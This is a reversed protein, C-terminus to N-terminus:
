KFFISVDILKGGKKPKYDQDKDRLKKTAVEMEELKASLAKLDSRWLDKITKSKLEELERKKEDREKLLKDKREATLMWMTMGVLYDYKKADQEEVDEEEAVEDEEDVQSARLNKEKWVMVPDADYKKAILQAIMDKKKMNEVKVEGSCKELIFRAQNSLRLAEAELMGVYYDKRKQYYRLRLAFFEKLIQSTSEYHILADLEDFACMNSVSCMTQLKFLKHLGEKEAKRLEGPLFTIIFRVVTESSYEKYDSLIPKIKDSGHLMPDLLNERYPHTWTGVPLETIEITDEDIISVEGNIVYRQDAINEITGVFGRYWPKLPIIEKDDLLLEMNKILDKPNYNLIKTSWGTGIGEAGNALM